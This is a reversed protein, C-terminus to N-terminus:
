LGDHHHLDALLRFRIQQAWFDSTEQDVPMSPSVHIGQIQFTEYATLISTAPTSTALSPDTATAISTTVSITQQLQTDPESSAVAIVSPTPPVRGFYRKVREFSTELRSSIDPSPHGTVSPRLELVEM